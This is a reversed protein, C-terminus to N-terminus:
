RHQDPCISLLGAGARADVRGGRLHSIQQVYIARVQELASEADNHFTPAIFPPMFPM